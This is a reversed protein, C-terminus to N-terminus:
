FPSKWHPEWLSQYAEWQSTHDFRRGQTQAPKHSSWDISFLSLSLTLQETTDSEKHGWPSYGMLSRQGHFEGLGPSRGSGPILGLDGAKCVSEKGGSGGAFGLSCLLTQSSAESFADYFAHLKQQLFVRLLRVVVKLGGHHLPGM